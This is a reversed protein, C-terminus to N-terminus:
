PLAEKALGTQVAWIALQTRDRLALKALAASLNNRVTGESFHLKAAIERNSLGRGVLQAIQRETKSLADEGDERVEVLLEERSTGLALQRFIHMVKDLLEPNVITGGEVVRRVASTLEEVSVGKLLYGSAGYQLAKYVYADDDFTTLILIRVAPYLDKVRRTVEVGDMGPMRIDLLICDPLAEGAKARECLADLLTQGDAYAGLVDMGEQMSLIVKLSERILEQDDALMLAAQM